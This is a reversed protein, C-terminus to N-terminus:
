CSQECWKFSGSGLKESASDMMFAPSPSHGSHFPVKHHQQCYLFLVARSTKHTCVCLFSITLVTSSFFFLSLSSLFWCARIPFSAFSILIWVLHGVRTDWCEKINEKTDWSFASPPDSVEDWNQKSQSCNAIYSYYHRRRVMVLQIAAHLCHHPPKASGTWWAAEWTVVSLSQHRQAEWLADKLM